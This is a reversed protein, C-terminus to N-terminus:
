WTYSLGGIINRGVGPIFNTKDDAKPAPTLRMPPATVEAQVLYSSAYVKDALNNGQLFFTWQGKKYGLRAGVLSYPDQYLTNKHDIPTKVPLSELNVEAFIGIPHKYTLAGFLYHTPIGAIQNGKLEGGDFFFDSYNYNVSLTFSDEKASFVHTLFTSQLGAELGRHITAYPTNVTNGGVGVSGDAITFIEDKVWSHYASVNWIFAQGINGKTGLEVTSAKQAKLDSITITTPGSNVNSSSNYVVPPVPPRNPNPTASGTLRVIELFTPPEYSRSFNAFVQARDTFKYIM